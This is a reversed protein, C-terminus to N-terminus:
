VYATACTEMIRYLKVMTDDSVREDPIHLYHHRLANAHAFPDEDNGVRCVVFHFRDDQLMERVVLEM